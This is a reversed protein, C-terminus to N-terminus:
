AEDILVECLVDLARLAHDLARPRLHPVDELLGDTLMQDQQVSRRAARGGRAAARPAPTWPAWIATGAGSGASACASARIRISDVLLMRDGACPRGIAVGVWSM